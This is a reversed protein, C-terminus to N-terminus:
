AARRSAAGAPPCSDSSMFRIKRRSGVSRAISRCSQASCRSPRTHTAPAATFEAVPSNGSSWSRQDAVYSASSCRTTASRRPIQMKLRFGNTSRSASVPSSTPFHVGVLAFPPLSAKGFVEVTAPTTKNETEKGPRYQVTVGISATYEGETEDLAGTFQEWVEDLAECAAQKVKDLEESSLKPGARKRKRSSNGSVETTGEAM